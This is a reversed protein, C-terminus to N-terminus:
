PEAIQEPKPTLHTKRTEVLGYCDFEVEVMYYNIRRIVVGTHGRKNKVREGIKLEETLKM